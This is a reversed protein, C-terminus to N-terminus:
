LDKVLRLNSPELDNFYIISFINLRKSRYINQKPFQM